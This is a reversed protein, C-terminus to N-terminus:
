ASRQQLLGDLVQLSKAANVANLVPFQTRLYGIAVAILIKIIRRGIEHCASDKWEGSQLAGNVAQLIGEGTQLVDLRGGRIQQSVAQVVARFVTEGFKHLHDASGSPWLSQLDAYKIRNSADTILQQAIQQITAASTTRIRWGRGGPTRITIQYGTM